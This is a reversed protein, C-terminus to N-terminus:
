NGNSPSSPTATSAPRRPPIVTPTPAELNRFSFNTIIWNDARRSLTYIFEFREQIATTPGGYTWQERTTVFVQRTSIRSSVFPQQLYELDVTFPSTYRQNTDIAFARVENLARGAWFTELEALNEDTASEITSRLAENGNRLAALVARRESAILTPVPTPTATPRTPTATPTGTNTATPTATSTPSNTPTPSPTFTFTPTATNTATATPTNTNTATATPSNTPSPSPTFTFTPTATATATATNTETATPSATATPTNTETATPSATQTPSPSPTPTNTPVTPTPTATPSSTQTPSPSPTPTNTPVTPTPTTTPLPTVTATNTPTSTFPPTATSISSSTLTPTSILVATSTVVASAAITIEDTTSTLTATPTEILRPTASPSPLALTSTETPTTADAVQAPQTTQPLEVVTTQVPTTAALALWGLAGWVLIWASLGLMFVGARGLSNYRTVNLTIPGMQQRGRLVALVLLPGIVILILPLFLILIILRGFDVLGGRM